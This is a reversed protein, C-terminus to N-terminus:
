TNDIDANDVINDGVIMRTIWASSMAEFTTTVFDASPDSNYVAYAASFAVASDKQDNTMHNANNEIGVGIRCFLLALCGVWIACLFVAWFRNQTRNDHIRNDDNDDNYFDAM